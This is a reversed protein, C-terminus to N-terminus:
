RSEPSKEGDETTTESDPPLTPEPPQQPGKQYRPIETLEEVRELAKQQGKENLKRFFGEIKKLQIGMLQSHLLDYQYASIPTDKEKKFEEYDEATEMLVEKVGQVDSEYIQLITNPPLSLLAELKNVDHNKLATIIQLADLSEFGQLYGVTVNLAEAISHMMAFSPERHGLEYKSITSKTTGIADALEKQSMQREQRAEKIRKGIENM